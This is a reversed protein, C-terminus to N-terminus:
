IRHNRTQRCLVKQEKEDLKGYGIGLSKAKAGTSTGMLLPSGPNGQGSVEFREKKVM